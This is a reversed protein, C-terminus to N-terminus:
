QDLLVHVPVHFNGLNQNTSTTGEAPHNWRPGLINNGCVHTAFNILHFTCWIPNLVSWILQLFLNTFKFICFYFSYSSFFLVIFLMVSIHSLNLPFLTILHIVKNYVYLFSSFPVINNGLVLSLSFIKFSGMHFSMYCTSSCFYLKYFIEWYFYHMCSPVTWFLMM